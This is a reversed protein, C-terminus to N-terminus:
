PVIEERLLPIAKNDKHWEKHHYECLWLVDLPRNYDRHHGHTKVEGCVMCPSRQLKGRRVANKYKIRARFHESNLKEWISRAAKRKKRGQESQVYRRQTEKRHETQSYPKTLENACLKCYPYRGSPRRRDRYFADPPKDAHCKACIM